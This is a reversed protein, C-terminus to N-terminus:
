WYNLLQYYNAEKLVVGKEHLPRKRARFRRSLLVVWALCTLLCPGSSTYDRTHLNPTPTPSDFEGLLLRSNHFSRRRHVPVMSSAM